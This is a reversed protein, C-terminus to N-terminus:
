GSRSSWASLPETTTAHLNPSWPTEPARLFRVLPKRNGFGSNATRSESSFPWSGIMASVTNVAWRAVYNTSAATRWDFRKDLTLGRSELHRMWKPTTTKTWEYHVFTNRLQVLADFDQWPATSRDFSKGAIVVPLLSWKTRLKMKLFDDPIQDRHAAHLYDAMENIAAEAATAAM